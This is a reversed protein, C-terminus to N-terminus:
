EATQFTISRTQHGFIRGGHGFASDLTGLRSQQVRITTTCEGALSTDLTGASVTFQGNNEDPTTEWESSDDLCNILVKLAVQASEEAPSWVIHIDDNARSLSDDATPADITFSQPLQIRSYPANDNNKRVFSITFESNEDIDDFTNGYWGNPSARDDADILGFSALEILLDGSSPTDTRAKLVKTTQSFDNINSFLNGSSQFAFIDQDVAAYFRDGNNLILVNDRDEDKLRAEVTATSGDASTVHLSASMASLSVNESSSTKDESCGSMVISTLGILFIPSYRRLINLM